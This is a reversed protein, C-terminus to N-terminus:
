DLDKELKALADYQKKSYESFAYFMGSLERREQTNLPPNVAGLSLYTEARHLQNPAPIARQKAWYGWYVPSLHTALEGQSSNTHLQRFIDGAEERKNQQIKEGLKIEEAIASFDIHWNFWNMQEALDIFVM